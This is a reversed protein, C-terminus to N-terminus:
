KNRYLFDYSEFESALADPLSNKRAYPDKYHDSSKWLPEFIYIYIAIDFDYVPVNSNYPLLEFARVLEDRGKYYNGMSGYCLAKYMLNKAYINRLPEIHDSVFSSNEINSNLSIQLEGIRSLHQDEIKNLIKLIYDANANTPKLNPQIQHFLIHKDELYDYNM